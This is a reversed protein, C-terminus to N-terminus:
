MPVVHVSIDQKLEAAINRLMAYKSPTNSHTLVFYGDIAM